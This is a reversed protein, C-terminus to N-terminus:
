HQVDGDRPGRELEGLAYLIDTWAAIGGEDDANLLAQLRESAVERARDGHQRRLIHASRYADLPVEPRALRVFSSGAAAFGRQKMEAGAEDPVEFAEDELEGDGDKGTM